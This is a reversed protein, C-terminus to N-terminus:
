NWAGVNLWPGLIHNVSSSSYFGATAALRFPGFFRSGLSHFLRQLLSRLSLIFVGIAAIDGLSIHCVWGLAQYMKPQVRVM